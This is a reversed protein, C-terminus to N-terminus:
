AAVEESADLIAQEWREITKDPVVDQADCWLGNLFVRLVTASPAIGEQCDDPDANIIQRQGREGEYEVQVSIAGFTQKSIYCGPAAQLGHGSLVNLQACLDRITAEHAAQIMHAAQYGDVTHARTNREILQRANM